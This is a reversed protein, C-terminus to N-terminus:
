EGKMEALAELARRRAYKHDVIPYPYSKGLIVNFKELVSSSALWPEHIYKSPLNKLEPIWAKVYNGRPDFKKGQMIPNFIRFFPSADAGCGAVWQWSASNSAPDADVLRRRFWEAGLRWDILLHKILFSATVMRVRNHMWGTTHLQRMGADVLPYGTCGHKWMEILETNENWPFHLFKKQLPQTDMDPCQCLLNYSFERWVLERLFASRGEVKHPTQIRNWITRPSIEGFHLHVSLMSTGDRDPRDRDTNYHDVVAAFTELRCLAGTEGPNWFVGISDHIETGKNKAKWSEIDENEPWKRPSVLKKPVPIGEAIEKLELFAKYYPTFVKYANGSKTRLEEPESLLYGKFRRFPISLKNSLLQDETNEWDSYRRSLYIAESDTVKILKKLVEERNGRRFILKSNLERLSQDLKKLSKFLWWESVSDKLLYSPANPDHIYVPVIPRGTEIARALAINDKLRLDRYFLYIIPKMNGRYLSM